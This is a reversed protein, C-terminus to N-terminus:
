ITLPLLIEIHIIAVQIQFGMLLMSRTQNLIFSAPGSFIFHSNGNRLLLSLFYIFKEFFLRFFDM